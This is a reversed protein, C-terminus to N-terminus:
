PLAVAIGDDAQSLQYILHMNTNPPIGRVSGDGVLFNIVGTHASGFSFSYQDPIDAPDPEFNAPVDASTCGAIARLRSDSPGNAFVGDPGILRAINCYLSPYDSHSWQDMYGGNWLRSAAAGTGSHVTIRGGQLAYSPVNKEGFVM